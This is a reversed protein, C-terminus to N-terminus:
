KSCARSVVVHANSRLREPLRLLIDSPARCIMWSTVPILNDAEMFSQFPAGSLLARSPLRDSALPHSKFCQTNDSLTDFLLSSCSPGLRLITWREASPSDVEFCKMLERFTWLARYTFGMCRM